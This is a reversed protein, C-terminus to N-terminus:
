NYLPRGEIRAGFFAGLDDVLEVYQRWSQDGTRDEHQVFDSKLGTWAILRFGNSHLAGLRGGELIPGSVYVPGSRQRHM